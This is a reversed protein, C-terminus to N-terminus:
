DGAPVAAPEVSDGNPLLLAAAAGAVALAALTLYLASFGGFREYFYAATQVSLPGVGFALIFKAGFILGRYRGPSYRALLLNEAPVQIQMVIVVASAAFVVAVGGLGALIVMMAAQLGLAGFYIWKLNLRDALHGGLLQPFTATLNILTVLGGVGAVGAGILSGLELEVLKPLAIQMCNFMMGGAVMTVTMILFARMVDGRSPQAQPLVDTGRDEVFGLIALAYLAIGLVLCLAGPVLFATRWGGAQSLSGAVIAALAVGLSGAIGFWGMAKGRTASHRVTLSMGVPHFISCGLGMVALGLWLGTEGMSFGAIGAGLGSLLFFVALMRVESWRDGLWGALPAGVGILLSGLTWLRLLQDYSVHWDTELVLVVTLYLGGLIHMLTHGAWCFGIALTSSARNGSM